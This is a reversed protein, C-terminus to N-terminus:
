FLTDIHLEGKIGDVGPTFDKPVENGKIVNGKSDLLIFNLTWNGTMTYNVLGHYLGDEEQVLDKNNPTSHNGMSPEPMRPDLKLLGGDVTSFSYNKEDPFESNTTKEPRNYKYIGAILDNEGVKPKEPAVLAIYYQEGDNGVFSTMNLNKNTQKLVSITKNVSHVENDIKLELHVEWTGANESEDTFVSYGVYYNEDKMKKLNFAHPCSLIPKEGSGHLLPLFHLEEVTAAQNNSSNTIEARIENYGKYYEGNLTLLKINYNDVSWESAVKFGESDPIVVLIEQEYDTRDLTCSTVIVFSIIWLYNFVKM